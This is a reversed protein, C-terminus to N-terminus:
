SFSAEQIGAIGEGGEGGGERERECVCVPGNHIFINPLTIYVTYLTWKKVVIHYSYM